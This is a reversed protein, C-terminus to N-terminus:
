RLAIGRQLYIMMTYYMRPAIIVMLKIRDMLTVMTRVVKAAKASQKGRELMFIAIITAETEDMNGWIEISHDHGKTTAIIFQDIHETTWLISQVLPEKMILAEKDTLRKEEKKPAVKQRNQKIINSYAQFKSKLGSLPIFHRTEEKGRGDRTSQYVGGDSRTTGAEDTGLGSSSGSIGGQHGNFSTTTGDISRPTEERTGNITFNTTADSQISQRIVQSTGINRRIPKGSKRVYELIEEKSLPLMNGGITANDM